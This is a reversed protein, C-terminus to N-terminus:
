PWLIVIFPYCFRLPSSLSCLLMFHAFYLSLIRFKKETCLNRLLFSEIKLLNLQIPIPIKQLLHSTCNGLVNVKETRCNPDCSHNIFRGLNGKACADIVQFHPMFLVNGLLTFSFLFILSDM